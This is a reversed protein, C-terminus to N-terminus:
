RPSRGGADLDIIHEQPGKHVVYTLGSQEPKQFQEPLQPATGGARPFPTRNHSVVAITAPGTIIKEVTYTGDEQIRGYVPQKDAGIFLVDGSTLPQNHYLVKGSVQGFDPGCGPLGLVLLGTLGLLCRLPRIMIAM